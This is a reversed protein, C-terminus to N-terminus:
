PDLWTFFNGMGQTEEIYGIGEIGDSMKGASGLFNGDFSPVYSKKVPSVSEFGLTSVADQCRGTIINNRTIEANFM